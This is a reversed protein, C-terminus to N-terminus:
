QKHQCEKDQKNTQWSDDDSCIYINNFVSPWCLDDFKSLLRQRTFATLFLLATIVINIYRYSLEFYDFATSDKAILGTERMYVIVCFAGGVIMAARLLLSMWRAKIYNIKSFSIYSIFLLEVLIYTSLAQWTDFEYSADVAFLAGLYAMATIPATLHIKSM